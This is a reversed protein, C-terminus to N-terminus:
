RLNWLFMALNAIDVPERTVPRGLKRKLTNRISESDWGRKGKHYKELLRIKMELAFFDVLQFLAQVEQPHDSAPHPKCDKTTVRPAM